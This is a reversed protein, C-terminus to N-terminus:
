LQDISQTVEQFLHLTQLDKVQHYNELWMTIPLHRLALAVEYNPVFVEKYEYDYALYGLHILATLADDKSDILSLDNQFTDVDVRVRGKALM